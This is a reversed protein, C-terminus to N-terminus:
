STVAKRKAEQLREYNAQRREEFAGVSPIHEYDDLCVEDLLLGHCYCGLEIDAIMELCAQCTRFKDFTGDWMGSAYQHREGKHIVSLCESCKYDRRGDVLKSEYFTPSSGCDCDCM